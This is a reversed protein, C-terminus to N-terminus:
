LLHGIINEAAEKKTICSNMAMKEIYHHAEPESMQRESILLCKARNLIRIEEMKDELSLTKQEIQRLRERASMMWSLAQQMTTRSMPRSVTFVGYEAAKDNVEEYLEAITLLLAVTSQSRCCDIAFQVGTEDPLPSNIILFDFNKSAVLRKAENVSKATIVPQYQAPPLMEATAKNFANSASVILVSYIRERLSM